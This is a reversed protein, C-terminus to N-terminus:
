GINKARELVALGKATTLWWTKPWVKRGAWEPRTYRELFGGAELAYLQDPMTNKKGPYLETRTTFKRCAELIRVYVRTPTPKVCKAPAYTRYGIPATHILTLNM